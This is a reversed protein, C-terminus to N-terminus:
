TDKALVASVSVPNATPATAALGEVDEITVPDAAAGSENVAGVLDAETVLLKADLLGLSHALVDGRQHYNVMGAVAGCKTVALMMLVANPSNRLMIGVVDGHGVGRAALVAAYRNVTANADRYTWRQEGFRIFVRDGFRAARDQFVKGISARSTPRALLGTRVGQLISPADALLAPLRTAIDTLGVRTATGSDHDSVSNAESRQFRTSRRPCLKTSVAPVPHAPPWRRRWRTSWWCGTWRGDRCSAPM